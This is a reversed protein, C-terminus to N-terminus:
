HSSVVVPRALLDTAVRHREKREPRSFDFEGARVPM